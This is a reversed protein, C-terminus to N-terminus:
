WVKKSWVRAANDCSEATEAETTRWNGVGGHNADDAVGNSTRMKTGRMKSVVSSPKVKTRCGPSLKWNSGSEGHGNANIMLLACPWVSARTPANKGTGTKVYPWNYTTTLRTQQRWSMTRQIMGVVALRM